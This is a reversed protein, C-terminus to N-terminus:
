RVTLIVKRTWADGIGDPTEPITKTNVEISESPVGLGRLIGAIRGARARAIEANETLIAGSSLRSAGRFAQVTVRAANIEKFRAAARALASTAHLSLFDNDFDFYITVDGPGEAKVWSDPPGRRARPPADIGDEAPLITNCAPTLETLVSIKVPKLPIGGCVRPGPAVTGEVLVEHLLQPPYFDEAVGGQIGLFYIEDQYEALWCPTTKTDRVLPCAVFSRREQASLISAILSLLAVARM